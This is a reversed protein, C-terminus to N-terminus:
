GRRRRRRGRPGLGAAAEDADSSEVAPRGHEDEGADGGAALLEERAEALSPGQAGFRWAAWPDAGHGTGSLEAAEEPSACVEGCMITTAEGLTRGIAAMAEQEDGTAVAGPPAGLREAWAGDPRRRRPAADGLGGTAEHPSGASTAVSVPADHHVPAGLGPVLPGSPGSGVPRGPMVWPLAVPARRVEVVEIFTRGNSMRRADLEHVLVNGAMTAVGERVDDSVRAALLHLRPGTPTSPSLQERFANWDRRFATVGNPYSEALELWGRAATRSARGLAGVLTAADLTDLVEVCVIEGTADMATLRPRSPADHWTIPFLDRQLLELVQERVADLVTEDIPGGAEHGVQAPVLRGAEFEFLPM